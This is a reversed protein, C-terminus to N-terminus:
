RFRDNKAELSPAAMVWVMTFEPPPISAVAIPSPSSCRRDNGFENRPSRRAEPYSCMRAM